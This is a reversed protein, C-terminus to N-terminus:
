PGAVIEPLYIDACLSYQRAPLLQRATGVRQAEGLVAQVERKERLGAVCDPRNRYEGGLRSKRSHVQGLLISPPDGVAVDAELM